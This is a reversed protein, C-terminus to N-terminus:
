KENLIPDFIPLEGNVKSVSGNAGIEVTGLLAYFHEVGHPPIPLPLNAPTIEGNADTERPWEVDGTATRAPILWYDGSRYEAGSSQFQIQVGNELNLWATSDEVILAANDSGMVLGGRAAEGGKQDWRRLLPHSGPTLAFPPADSLTVSTSARDISQVQLLPNATGGLAISDDEFEVWDGEELGFRDDRGLNELFIINGNVSLVPFVVSGNERSWKFTAIGAPSANKIAAKSERVRAKPAIRAGGGAVGGTHIEVRYLQNEPGRYQADPSATCPDTGAASKRAMAKLLPQPGTHILGDIDAGGLAKSANDPDLIRVQWVVRSRAATDPGNLAVERISDDQVYTLAREWVDLYVGQAVNNGQLVALKAPSSLNPQTLYTAARTLTAPKKLTSLDDSVTFTGAAQDIDTISTLIDSPAGGSLRVVQGEAFPIGDPFWSAVHVKNKANPSDTALTWAVPAAAIECLMGQVYCRGATLAFDNGSSTLTQLAFGANGSPAGAPGILDAALTQLYHLLIAAQENWDADLQVRGQQMLVRRFNRAENFSNGTFDAKM